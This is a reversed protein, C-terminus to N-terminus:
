IRNRLFNTSMFSNSARSDILIYASTHAISIQGVMVKSTGAEAEEQM